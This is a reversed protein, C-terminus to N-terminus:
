ASCLQDLQNAAASLLAFLELKILYGVAGLFLLAILQVRDSDVLLLDVILVLHILLILTLM